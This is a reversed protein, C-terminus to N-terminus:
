AILILNDFIVSRPKSEYCKTDVVNRGRKTKKRNIRFKRINVCAKYNLIRLKRDHDVRNKIHKLQDANYVHGKQVPDSKSCNQDMTSQKASVQSQTIPFM